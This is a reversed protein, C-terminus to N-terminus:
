KICSSSASKLGYTGVVQLVPIVPRDVGEEVLADISIKAFKGLRLFDLNLLFPDDRYKQTKVEGFGVELHEPSAKITFLKMDPQRARGSELLEAKAKKATTSATNPWALGVRPINSLFHGLYQHVFICILNGESESHMHVPIVPLAKVLNRVLDINERETPEELMRRILKDDLTTTMGGERSADKCVRRLFLEASDDMEKVEFKIEDLIQARLNPMM